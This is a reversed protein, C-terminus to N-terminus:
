NCSGDLPFFVENYSGVCVPGGSTGGSVQSAAVRVTGGFIFIANSNGGFISNTASLTGSATFLGMSFTGTGTAIAASNRMQVIGGALFLGNSDNGEGALANSEHLLLTGGNVLIGILEGPAGLAHAVVNTITMFGSPHEIANSNGVGTGLNSVQLDSLDAEAGMLVPGSLQGVIITAAVGSGQISVNNKMAITQSGCSFVGPGLVILYPNNPAADTIGAIAALLANCNDDITPGAAEIFVMNKLGLKAATVAGDALRSASVAGAQLKATSVSSNALKTVNVAGPALKAATIAGITIKTPNVSNPALKPATVAGTAIKVSNVASNAIKGNTVAGGGIKGSTVAGNALDSEQVCASCVLNNAQQGWAAGASMCALLLAGALARPLCRRAARFSTSRLM